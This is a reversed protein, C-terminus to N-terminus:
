RRPAWDPTVDVEWEPERRWDVPDVEPNFQIRRSILGNAAEVLEVCEGLAYPKVWYELVKRPVSNMSAGAPCCDVNPPDGFHLKRNAIRHRLMVPPGFGSPMIPANTSMAVDFRTACAQCEIGLLVAELAYISALRQPRFPDFRPVANEDWWLPATDIRDLIDSYNQHM